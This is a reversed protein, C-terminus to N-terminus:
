HVLVTIKLRGGWGMGCSASSARCSMFQPCVGGSGEGGRVTLVSGGLCFGAEPLLVHNRQNHRDVTTIKEAAQVPKGVWRGPHGM